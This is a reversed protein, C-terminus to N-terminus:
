ERFDLTQGNIVLVAHAPKSPTAPALIVLKANDFLEFLNALLDCDAKVKTNLTSVLPLKSLLQQSVNTMNSLINFLNDADIMNTIEYSFMESLLEKLTKLDRKPEIKILNIENGIAKVVSNTSDTMKSIVMKSDIKQNGLLKGSNGITQELLGSELFVNSRVLQKVVSKDAKEGQKSVLAIDILSDIKQKAKKIDIPYGTKHLESMVNTKIQQPDVNLKNAAVVAKATEIVPNGSNMWSQLKKSIAESIVGGGFFLSQVENELQQVMDSLANLGPDSYNIPQDIESLQYETQFRPPRHTLPALAIAAKVKTTANDITGAIDSNDLFTKIKKLNEPNFIKDTLSIKSDNGTKGSIKAETKLNETVGSNNPVPVPKTLNTFATEVNGIRAELTELVKKQEEPTGTMKELSEKIESTEKMLETKESEGMTSSKIKNQAEKVKNDLVTAQAKNNEQRCRALNETLVPIAVIDGKEEAEKLKKEAEMVANGKELLKDEEKKAREEKSLPRWKAAQKLISDIMDDFRNAMAVQENFKITMIQNEMGMRGAMQGLLMSQYKLSTVASGKAHILLSGGPHKAKAKGEAQSNFKERAAKDVLYTILGKMVTLPI